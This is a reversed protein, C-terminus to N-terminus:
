LCRLRADISALHQRAVRLDQQAHILAAGDPPAVGYLDQETQAAELFARMADSREALQAAAQQVVADAAARQVALREREADFWPRLHDLIQCAVDHHAADDNAQFEPEGGEKATIIESLEHLAYRFLERDEGEPVYIIHKLPDSSAPCEPVPLILVRWNLAAAADCCEAFSAPPAGHNLRRMEAEVQDIPVRHWQTPAIMSLEREM